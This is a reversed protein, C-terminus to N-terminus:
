VGTPTTIYGPAAGIAVYHLTWNFNSGSTRTTNYKYRFGVSTISIPYVSFFDTFNTSQVTQLTLFVAPQTGPLFRSGVSTSGDGFTVNAEAGNDLIFPGTVVGSLLLIGTSQAAVWQTKKVSSLDVQNAGVASVSLSGDKHTHRWSSEGAYFNVFLEPIGADNAMNFSTITGSRLSDYAAQIDAKGWTLGRGIRTHYIRGM